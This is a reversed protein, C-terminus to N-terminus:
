RCDPPRRAGAAGRGDGAPRITARLRSATSSGRLRLRRNPRHGGPPSLRRRLSAGRQWSNSMLPCLLDAKAWRVRCPKPTSTLDFGLTPRSAGLWCNVLQFDFQFGISNAGLGSRCTGRIQRERGGFPIARLSKPSSVNSKRLSHRLPASGHQHGTRLHGELEKLRRRSSLHCQRRTRQHGAIVTSNRFHTVHGRAVGVHQCGAYMLVLRVEYRPDVVWAKWAGLFCVYTSSLGLDVDFVKQVHCNGTAITIPTVRSGSTSSTRRRSRVKEVPM